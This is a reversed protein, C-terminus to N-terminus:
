KNIISKIRTAADDLAQQPEKANLLMAQFEEVIINDLAAKDSYAETDGKRSTKTIELWQEALPDNQVQESAIVEKMTPLLGGQTFYNTASEKGVIHKIFDAADQQYPSNKFIVLVHGWMKDRPTDGANLVPRPMPALRDLLEEESVGGNLVIGKVLIADEFFGIKGQTFLQRASNRDVDMMIFGKDYMKKYWNMTQLGAENNIIVEGKDDFVGGGFAWLWVQIDNSASASKTLAGYPIIEKDYDKLKQLAAEFEELTEPIKTVGAAELLTPNYVMSTASMTWPIGYQKGDIQGVELASAEFNQEMWDKGVLETLDVIADAEQLAKLWGIESQGVDMSQKSTNRVLIQQLAQDWPWGLWAATKKPNETNWKAIMDGIIVDSPKDSGSWGVWTLNVEKQAQSPDAGGNGKGKNGENKGCGTIVLAAILMICIFGSWKKM